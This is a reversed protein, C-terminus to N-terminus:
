ILMHEALWGNDRAMCQCNTPSVSRVLYRTGGYGSGYSWIERSEPFHVIYQRIAHGRWSKAESSAPRRRLARVSGM